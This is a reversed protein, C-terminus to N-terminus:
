ISYQSVILMPSSMGSETIAKFGITYKKNPALAFGSNRVANYLANASLDNLLGGLRFLLQKETYEQVASLNEIMYLGWYDTIDSNLDNIIFEENTFDLTLSGLSISPKTGVFTNVDPKPLGVLATNMYLFSCLNQASLYKNNGWRDVFIITKAKVKWADRTEQDLVSYYKFSKVILTRRLNQTLANTRTPLALRGLIATGRFNRVAHGNIRGAGKVIISGFLIKM